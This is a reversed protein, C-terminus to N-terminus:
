ARPLGLARGLAIWDPPGVIFRPCGVPTANPWAFRPDWVGLPVAGLPPIHLVLVPIHTTTGKSRVVYVGPAPSVAALPASGLTEGSRADRVHIVDGDVHLTWVPGKKRSMWITVVLGVVIVVGIAIPAITMAVKSGTMALPGLAFGLLAVVGITVLWPAVSKAMAGMAQPNEALAVSLAAGPQAAIGQGLGSLTLLEDFRDAPMSANISEVPPRTLALAAPAKHDQGALTFTRGGSALHLVTGAVVNFYAPRWEGFAVSSLPFEGGGPGMVRLVGRGLEVRVPRTRFMVVMLATWAVFAGAMLAGGLWRDVVVNLVGGGFFLAGAVLMTAIVQKKGVGASTAEFVIEASQRHPALGTAM